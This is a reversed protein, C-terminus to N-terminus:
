IPVRGSHFFVAIPDALARTERLLFPLIVTM